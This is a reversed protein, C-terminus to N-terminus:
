ALSWGKQNVLRGYLRAAETRLDDLTGSNHIVTNMELAPHQVWERSDGEFSDFGDRLVKVVLFNMPGVREIIPNIECQFGSDRIMVVCHSDYVWEPLSSLWLKAMIDQGYCPKLFRESVDILIERGTSQLQPFFTPKFEEYPLMSSEEQYDLGILKYAVERLPTSLSTEMVPITQHRSEIEKALLSALTDKGCRPPGNFGVVFM